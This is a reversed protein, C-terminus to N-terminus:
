EELGPLVKVFTGKNVTYFWSGDFGTPQEKEERLGRKAGLIVLFSGGGGSDFDCFGLSYACGNEDKAVLLPVKANRKKILNRVKKM